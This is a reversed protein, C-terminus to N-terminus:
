PQAQYVNKLSELKDKEEAPALDRALLWYKEASVKDGREQYLAALALSWHYDGPNRSSGRQVYEIAGDLNGRYYYTDAIKKLLTFDDPNSNYAALYHDAAAIYDKQAEYVGGLGKDIFYNYKKEVALHEAPLREDRALPLNAAASNYHTIAASYDGRAVALKAQELIVLPWHPALAAVRSLYEEAAGYNQLVLNIKGKLFLNKYGVDSLRSLLSELYARVATKPALAKIGGYLESLQYGLWYDYSDQIVPNTKQERAYSELELVAFYDGAPLAQYVTNFYYDAAIVRALRETRWATLVLL